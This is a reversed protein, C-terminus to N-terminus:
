ILILIGLGALLCYWAFYSLKGRRVMRVLFSIALLSVGLCIIFGVIIPIPQFAGTLKGFDKLKLISAGAMVPIALLFSFKIASPRDWGNLLGTALTSGSRSIGPVIAIMQAIGVLFAQKASARDLATPSGKWHFESLMLYIGTLLLGIGAVLPSTFLSSIQDNFFYGVLGAPITGVIVLYLIKPNLFMEIIEEYFSICIALLSALHLIVILLLNTEANKLGFLHEAIVLHGSSSIPLFETIGQIISLVVIEWFGM